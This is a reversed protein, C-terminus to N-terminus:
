NLAAWYRASRKLAAAALAGRDAASLQM